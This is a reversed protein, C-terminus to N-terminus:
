DISEPLPTLRPSDSSVYFDVGGWVGHRLDNKKAFNYCEKRVECQNCIKQSEAVMMARTNNRKAKETFFLPTLHPQGKCFARDRWQGGDDYKLHPLEIFNTTDYDTVRERRVVPPKVGGTVEVQEM